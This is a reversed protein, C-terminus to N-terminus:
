KVADPDAALRGFAKASPIAISDLFRLRRTTVTDSLESRAGNRFTGLDHSLQGDVVLVGDVAKVVTVDLAAFSSPGVSFPFVILDAPSAAVAPNTGLRLEFVDPAFIPNTLTYENSEDTGNVIFTARGDTTVLRGGLVVNSIAIHGPSSAVQIRSLIEIPGASFGSAPGVTKLALTITGNGNFNFEIRDHVSDSQLEIEVPGNITTPGGLLKLSGVPNRPKVSGTIQIPYGAIMGAGTVSGGTVILDDKQTQFTGNVRLEGASQSFDIGSGFLVSGGPKM